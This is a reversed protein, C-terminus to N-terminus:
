RFHNHIFQVKLDKTELSVADRGIRFTQLQRANVYLHHARRRVVPSVNFLQRSVMDSQLRDGLHTPGIGTAIEPM